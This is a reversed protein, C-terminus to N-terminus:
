RGHPHGRVGLTRPTRTAPSSAQRRRGQSPGTRNGNGSSYHLLLTAGACADQTFSTDMMEVVPWDTSPVGLEALSRTTNGPITASTTLTHVVAFNRHASCGRGPSDISIAIAGAPITISTSNPNHFSLDITASTGPSLPKTANGSITYHLRRSNKYNTLTYGVGRQGTLAVSGGNTTRAAPTAAVLAVLLAM